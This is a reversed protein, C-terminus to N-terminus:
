GKTPLDHDWIKYNIETGQVDKFIYDESYEMNIVILDGDETM